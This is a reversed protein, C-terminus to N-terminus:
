SLAHFLLGPVALTWLAIPRGTGDVSVTLIIGVPPSSVYRWRNTGRDLAFVGTSVYYQGPAHTQAEAIILGDPAVFLYEINCCYQAAPFSPLPNWTAGGDKSSLTIGIQYQTKAANLSMLRGFLLTSRNGGAVLYVQQGQYRLTVPTVARAYTDTKVYTVDLPDSVSHAGPLGIYLITGAPYFGPLSTSPLSDVFSQGVSVFPAGNVSAAILDKVDGKPNVLPADYRSAIFLTSGIWVMANLGEGFNPVGTPPQMLIWDQGGDHTMYVDNAQATCGDFQCLNWNAQLAMTQPDNASVAIQCDSDPIATTRFQWTHGGDHSIGLAL